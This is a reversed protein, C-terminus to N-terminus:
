CVLCHMLMMGLRAEDGHIQRGREKRDTREALLSSLAVKKLRSCVLRERRGEMEGGERMRNEPREKEPRGMKFMDEVKLVPSICFSSWGGVM